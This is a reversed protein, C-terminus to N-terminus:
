WTRKRAQYIIIKEEYSNKRKLIGTNWGKDYLFKRFYPDLWELVAAGSGAIVTTELVPTINDASDIYIEDVEFKTEGDPGKKSILTFGRAESIYFKQVTGIDEVMAKLLMDCFNKMLHSMREEKEAGVLRKYAMKEHFQLLIDPSNICDRYINESM